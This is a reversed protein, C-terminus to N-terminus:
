PAKVARGNGKPALSGRAFAFRVWAYVDRIRKDDEVDIRSLREEPSVHLQLRVVRARKDSSCVNENGTRQIQESPRRFKGRYFVTCRTFRSVQAVWREKKGPLRVRSFVNSGSLSVTYESLLVNSLIERTHM